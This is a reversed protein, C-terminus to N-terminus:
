LVRAQDGSGVWLKEWERRLKAVQLEYTDFGVFYANLGVFALNIWALIWNGAYVASTFGILCFTFAAYAMAISFKILGVMM